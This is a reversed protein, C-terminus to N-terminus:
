KEDQDIEELCLDCLFDKLIEHKYAMDHGCHVCPNILREKKELIQKALVLNKVEIIGRM